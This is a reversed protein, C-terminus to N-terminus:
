AGASCDGHPKQDFAAQRQRAPNDGCSGDARSLSPGRVLEFTNWFNGDHSEEHRAVAGEKIVVTCTM